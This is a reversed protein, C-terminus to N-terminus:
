RATGGRERTYDVDRNQLRPAASGHTLQVPAQTPVAQQDVAPQAWHPALVQQVQEPSLYQVPIPEASHETQLLTHPQQLLTEALDSIAAALQQDNVLQAADTSARAEDFADAGHTARLQDLQADDTEAHKGYARQFVEPYTAPDYRLVGLALAEGAPGACLATATAQPPNELNGFGAKGSEVATRDPTVWVGGHQLGLAWAAVIHASEHFAVVYQYQEDTLEPFAQPGETVTM